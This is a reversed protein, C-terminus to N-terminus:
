ENLATRRANSIAEDAQDMARAVATQFCPPSDEATVPFRVELKRCLTGATYRIRARLERAGRASRLDLDDFRVERSLSVDRIEAGIASRRAHYRPAFVEVQERGNQYVAADNDPSDYDQATASSAALMAGLACAALLVPRSMSKLSFNAM